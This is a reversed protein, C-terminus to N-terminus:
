ENGRFVKLADTTSPKFPSFKGSIDGMYATGTPMVLGTDGFTQGEKTYKIEGNSSLKSGSGSNSKTEKNDLVDLSYFLILSIIFLTGILLVIILQTKQNDKM